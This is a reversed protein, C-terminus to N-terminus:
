AQGPKKARVFHVGPKGKLDTDSTYLTLGNELATAYILADATSLGHSHSLEAARRCTAEQIPMKQFGQNLRQRYFERETHRETKLMWREYEYISFLSIRLSKNWITSRTEDDLTKTFFAILLNTDILIDTM